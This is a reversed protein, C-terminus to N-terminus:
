SWGTRRRAGCSRNSALFCSQRKWNLGNTVPLSNTSPNGFSQGMTGRERGEQGRQRPQEEGPVADVFLRGSEAGSLYLKVNEYTMERRTNYFISNANKIWRKAKYSVYSFFLTIKHWTNVGFQQRATFMFHPSTRLTLAPLQDGSCLPRPFGKILIGLATSKPFKKVSIVTSGTSNDPM